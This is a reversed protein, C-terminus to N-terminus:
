KTDREDQKNNKDLYFSSVIENLEEAIQALSASASSVEEMSATQEESSSAVTAVENSSSEVSQVTAMVAEVVKGTKGNAAQIHESVKGSLDVIQEKSSGIEDFAAGTQEISRQGEDVEAKNEEMVDIAARIDGQIDSVLQRINSASHNSQEALKRVEDAVVAFGKGHEGARAAEIAANLALLNTQESIDTILKLIGEIEASKEGLQNISESVTATKDQITHIKASSEALKGKGEEIRGSTEEIAKDVGSMNKQIYAIEESVDLVDEQMGNAKEAQDSANESITQISETVQETAKTTEESSASLEESSSALSGSFDVIRMIMERMNAKMTNMNAALQGFEDGRDEPLDDLRLDNESMSQLQQNVAQIPRSIHNSFLVIVVTGILLSGALTWFIVWLINNSAENYDEMYSGATVVWDWHPDIDNYMIKEGVRDTDGPFEWSYTTFGGGAQAAEIQDQVLYQGDTDQADWMNEGELTPHAVETGEEDYIVFYGNEGLDIEDNIPREGDENMEGLLYVKVQEQAEELELEGAEVRENMADILQLAMTVANEITQEGSDNLSENATYYSIGGVILSPVLLLIASIGLLKKRVNLWKM